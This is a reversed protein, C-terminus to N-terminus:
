AMRAEIVFPGPRAAAERLESSLARADEVRAAEVGLGRALSLFDVEPRTMELMDLAARGPNAGVRFLEQKLLEYGRNAFIVTTVNLGERAQTWLAQITYMASGDAQLAVVPRDPRAVAAGTALPPGIGIAGGTISIWSHPPAGATAEYIARGATLSEDCLIADAPAAAAVAAAV